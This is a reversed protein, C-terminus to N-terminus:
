CLLSGSGSYSRCSEGEEGGIPQSEALERLIREFRQFADRDEEEGIVRKDKGMYYRWSWADRQYDYKCIQRIDISSAGGQCCVEYIGKLRKQSKDSLQVFHFLYHFSKAVKRMTSELDVSMSRVIESAVDYCFETPDSSHFTMKMRRCGKNAIRVAMDLAVGDRAEALIFYDADSRMLNKSVNKLRENDAIIQIIPAEKMIQHLPIEPDTEVMVGELLPNEYSQWTSLFSTKASRVSGLFATNYGIKVMEQFLPIGEKPITHRRAQEEFSYEPVIYRRFIMADQGKKTLTDSYITIRTGDLLYLEHFDKDMREEPTRLMLARVLQERRAAPIRQKRLVMRGSEMFYVRDGIIKASSSQRFEEQFWESLGALGWNQHYIGEEISRYWSPFPAQEEGFQRLYGKIKDKFFSVEKEYGIIAKKQLDLLNGLGEQERNWEQEFCEQIRECLSMFRKEIEEESLLVEQLSDEKRLYDELYFKEM